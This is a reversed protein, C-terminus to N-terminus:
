RISGCAAPLSQRGVYPMFSDLVDLRSPAPEDAGFLAGISRPSFYPDQYAARGLMVGDVHTLHEDRRPSRGSAAM